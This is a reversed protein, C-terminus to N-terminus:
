VVLAFLSLREGAWVRFGLKRQEGDRTVHAVFQRDFKRAFQQLRRIARQRLGRLAVQFDFVAGLGALKDQRSASAFSIDKTGAENEAMRYGPFLRHALLYFACAARFGYIRDRMRGWVIGSVTDDNASALPFGFDADM